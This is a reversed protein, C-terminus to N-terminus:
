AVATVDDRSPEDPAPAPSHTPRARRTTAPRTYGMATLQASSWGADRAAQWAAAYTGEASQIATAAEARVHAAEARAVAMIQEARHDADAKRTDAQQREANAVGLEGIVGVMTTALADRAAAEAARRTKSNTDSM